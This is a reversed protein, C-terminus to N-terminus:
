PVSITGQSMAVPTERWGPVRSPHLGARDVAAAFRRADRPACCNSDNNFYCYLDDGPSWTEALRKAWTELPSRTYCSDPSGKGGHFRVYGWDATRWRPRNRDGPDVWVWAAHHKELLERIKDARWSVHRPEVAVRVDKPFARLTAALTGADAPLNPPLQLLLPGLKRGLGQAAAVLRAVPEASDRLRKTHTLYRSAKVAVVFDAPVDSAWGEFAERSPLRYFANNLEVTQFRRSYYELWEASRTGEPYFHGKWHGYHWGSTGILVAM